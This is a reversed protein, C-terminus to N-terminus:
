MLRNAARSPHLGSQAFRGSGATTQAKHKFRLISLLTGLSVEAFFERRFAVDQPAADKGYRVEVESSDWALLLLSVFPYRDPLNELALLFESEEPQSAIVWDPRTMEILMALNQTSQVEAVVEYEGSTELLQRLMQRVMRPRNALIVKSKSQTLGSGKPNIM